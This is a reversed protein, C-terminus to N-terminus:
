QIAISVRFPLIVDTAHVRGHTWWDQLVGAAAPGFAAYPVEITSLWPALFANLPNGDFGFLGIDQPVRMGREQCQKAAGYAIEDTTCFIADPRGEDIARGALQYGSRMRDVSARYLRVQANRGVLETFAARFGEVRGKTASSTMPGHFVAVQRHGAAAFHTGVARGAEANDIGVYPAKLQTPSRRNLFVMPIDARLCEALQASPVAGLMVIGGVLLSRMERLLDDQVSPEEHTNGLVMVRGEARLATEVSAAVSAHYANGPDPALVGVLHSRGQRLASGARSPRYNLEEIAQLVRARTEESMKGAVGNIVRSVTAASVGAMDAVRSISAPKSTIKGSAPM